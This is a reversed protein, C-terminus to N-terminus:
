PFGSFSPLPDLMAEIAIAVREAGRGDCLSAAALSMSRMDDPTEAMSRLAGEIRGQLGEGIAVIRGAKAALLSGANVAQNGAIPLCISPLGLVCREFMSGGAAGIVLDARCLLEAYEPPDVFLRLRSHLRIVDKIEVLGAPGVILDLAAGPLVAACAAVAARVFPTADSLGFSVVIRAMAGGENQRFTLSRERRGVVDPRVLAYAPGTLVVSGDPVLGRYDRASRGLGPDILLDCAHPRDALDDLVVLLRGQREGLVRLEDAAAYGYHDIVVVEAAEGEDPSRSALAPVVAVAGANVELHVSHGRGELAAALSLCRM